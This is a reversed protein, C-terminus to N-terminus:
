ERAPRNQEGQTRTHTRAIRLFARLAESQYRGPLTVAYLPRTFGGNPAPFCLIRKQKGLSEAMNRSIVGVGLGEAICNRLTESDSIEAIVNISDFSRGLSEILKKAQSQTGSATSRVLFPENLLVSADGHMRKLARYRNTNPAAIVLEDSAFPVFSCPSGSKKAGVLGIDIEGSEVREIVRMSDDEIVHVRVKPFSARYSALLRPVWLRSPASSSGITLRTQANGGITQARDRASLMQQAVRFLDRGEETPSSRKATRLILACDLEKELAAVHASVTPQSVHLLRAADSFSGERVVYVFSELQRLEM